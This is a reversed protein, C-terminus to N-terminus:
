SSWTASTARSAASARRPGAPGSPDPGRTASAAVPRGAQRHGSVLDVGGLIILMSAHLGNAFALSRMGGGFVYTLVVLCVM